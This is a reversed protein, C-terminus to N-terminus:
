SAVRASSAEVLFSERSEELPVMQLDREYSYSEKGSRRHFCGSGPPRKIPM